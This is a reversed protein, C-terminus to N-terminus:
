PADIKAAFSRSEAVCKCSPSKSEGIFLASHLPAFIQAIIVMLQEVLQAIGAFIVRM